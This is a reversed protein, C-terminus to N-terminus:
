RAQCTPRRAAPSKTSRISSLDPERRTPKDTTRSRTASSALQRNRVPRSAYFLHKISRIPILAFLHEIQSSTLVTM